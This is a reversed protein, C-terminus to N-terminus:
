ISGTTEGLGEWGNTTQHIFSACQLLFTVIMKNTKLLNFKAVPAQNGQQM